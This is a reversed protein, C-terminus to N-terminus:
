SIGSRRMLLPAISQSELYEPSLESTMHEVQLMKNNLTEDLQALFDRAKYSWIRWQTKYSNGLVEPLCDKPNMLSRKKGGIPTGEASAQQLRTLEDRMRDRLTEMEAMIAPNARAARPDTTEANLQVETMQAELANLRELIQQGLTTM